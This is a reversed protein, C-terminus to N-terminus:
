VATAPMSTTIRIENREAAGEPIAQAANILINLFIQGLRSETGAVDPLDDHHQTVRARHRIENMAMRLSSEIVHRLDASMSNPHEPHILLSFPKGVGERGCVGRM